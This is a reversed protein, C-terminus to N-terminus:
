SIVEVAGAVAAPIVLTFIAGGELRNHCAIEGGHQRIIGYCTSLGLGVGKGVQKTTFFPEFVRRPEKLGLGTDAFGIEIQEQKATISITLLGVEKGEMADIANEIILVFVQILQNADGLALPLGGQEQIEVQVHHRREARTLNVASELLPRVNVSSRNLPTEQAFSLMSEVLINTRRAAEGIKTTMKKRNPDPAPHSSLVDVDKGVVVMARNIEHAVRAVLKGLSALKENQVLQDEFRKLNSYALSADRLYASLKSNLLDQKLLLLVTLLLMTFLTLLIRFHRVPDQTEGSTVLWLGIAPTSLTALMSLWAPWLVTRGTPSVDNRSDEWTQLDESQLDVTFSMSTVCFWAMATTLPVDYLSGTYYRGVSIAHNILISALSYIATAGLFHFFFTRWRGRSRFAVVALVLLFIQNGVADMIDSQRNYSALDNGALMYAMAWFLYAYTWYVLLSTLDFLGLLRPRDRKDINPGLALAALMPVLKLFLLFEGVPISPVPQNLWVEYYVWLSMNVSWMGFGLALLLWFARATGRSSVGNWAFLLTATALLFFQSLDGFAALTYSAHSLLSASALLVPLLLALAM